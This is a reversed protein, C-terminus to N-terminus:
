FFGFFVALAYIISSLFRSGFDTKIWRYDDPLVYNQNATEEFDDTFNDYYRTERM